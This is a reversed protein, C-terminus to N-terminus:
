KAAFRKEIASLRAELEANKAKLENIEEDKQRTIEQTAPFDILLDSGRKSQLAAKGDGTKAKPTASQRAQAAFKSELDAVKKQLQDVKASESKLKSDLEQIAGIGTTFLRDYDVSLFDDVRRGYVFAKTVAKESAVVFVTPSLVELVKTEMMTEDVYVRVWDGAALAHPKAVTVSLRKKEANYLNKVARQYVDPLFNRSTSVAEPIVKGVEQAIFGKRVATGAHASDKLRYDTVQLRNILDLDGRTSSRAVIDKIRHDSTAVFASGAVAGEAYITLPWTSNGGNYAGNATYSDPNGNQPGSSSNSSSATTNPNWNWSSSGAVHLPSGPNITGIGLYGNSAIRMREYGTQRFIIPENADDYTEIHLAGNNDDGIGYIRWADNAAMTGGVGSDDGNGTTTTFWLGGDQISLKRTPNSTGIGINGDGTIRMREAGNTRFQVVGDATSYMGGGGNFTYGPAIVNSSANLGGAIDLKYAPSSTGIGVNGNGKIRMTENFSTSRGYGFAIDSGAVDSHIQLLGPQIGFGYHSGLNAYLSIKDGLSSAFNLPFGPNAEGIGVNGSGRYVSSGVPSWLGISNFDLKGATITNDAIDNAVISSDAIRNSDVAGSAIKSNTVQGDGMMATSVAGAAVNEAVKARLAFAGSVMQQRPSIELDAAATGDDVTVGLYLTEYSGSNIIDSLTKFPTNAPASPGPRNSVGTGNGILVSFEGGSITVTQKEAYLASGDSPVKYLQFIVTRNVPSTNGILVGAADTVRGQYSMLTPTSQAHLLPAALLLFLCGLNLKM